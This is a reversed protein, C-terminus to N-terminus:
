EKAAPRTIEEVNLFGGSVLSGILDLFERPPTEPHIWGAERCEAYLQQISRLGDCRALLYGMWPQVKCDMLFPYDCSLTFDEPAFDGEQIRHRVILQVKSSAAPRAAFVNELSRETLRETEWRLVKEIAASDAERALSRRITFVPRKSERRQVVVTGTLIEKVSLREFLAKWQNVEAQGSSRRVASDMAFRAPDLNKSIFLAIDFEGEATGLWVRLRQEFPAGERDTGLTRCYLRGGPALHQELGELIRRTLQEGDEGGDYYIEAPCLVPMYPPHAAIREFTHAEVPSFLDGNVISVNKIGNLAANFAAFNASRQTIDSAWAKRATRAAALAAIGSGACLELFEGCPDSPLFHLFERTSRTLAPYVIDPFSQKPTRDPNSWRDSVIFLDGVPYLAVAGFCRKRDASDEEILGLANMAAWAPGPFRSEAEAISVFEGLLFLRIIVDVPNASAVRHALNESLAVIDLAEVTPLGLKECIHGETYGSENLFSRLATFQSTTGIELLNM